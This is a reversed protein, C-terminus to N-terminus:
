AAKETAGSSVANAAKPSQAAPDAVLLVAPTQSVAAVRSLAQKTRPDSVGFESVVVVIDADPALREILDDRPDLIVHDYTQELAEFTAASPAGALTDASLRDRGSAIFHARSQRDRVIAQAFSADGAVLAAFGPGDGGEGMTSGEVGGGHLDILVTRRDARALARAIAIAAHSHQKVSAREALAVVIRRRRQTVIDDVIRSLSGGFGSAVMPAFTPEPPVMRSTSEEEQRPLPAATPSAESLVPVPDAVATSSIARGSALERLVVFAIGLLLAAFMTLATLPVIRPFSPEAPAIARSVVRAEASPPLSARRDIAERHRLRAAVLEQRLTAADRELVGLEAEADNVAAVITAVDALNREIDAERALLARAEADLANAIKGAEVLIQQDMEALQANLERMRLDGSLLTVSKEVIEALLVGQREVMNQILPADLVDAIDPVAGANLGNRIQILRAETQARANRLRTLEANIETLQQKRLAAEVQGDGSFLGNGARFDEVVADASVVRARLDVVEAELLRVVDGSADDSEARKARIYEAAITNAGRAAFQPDTARFDVAIARSDPIAFVSLNDFYKALVRDDDSVEPREALLGFAALLDDLLSGSNVAERYEVRAELDLETAVVQALDNSRIVHVQDTVSQPGAEILVTARSKYVPTVTSLGVFAVCGVLVVFLAIFPMARALSRLLVPVEIKM